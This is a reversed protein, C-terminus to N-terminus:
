RSAAKSGLPAMRVCSEESLKWATAELSTPKRRAFFYKILLTSKIM